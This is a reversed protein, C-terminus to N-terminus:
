EARVQSACWALSVRGGTQDNGCAAILDQAHGHVCKTCAGADGYAAACDSSMQSRCNHAPTDQVFCEAILREGFQTLKGCKTVLTSRHARVCSDCGAEDGFSASCDGHLQAKCGASLPQTSPPAPSPSPGPGPSPAPPPAVTCTRNFAFCHLLLQEASSGPTQAAVAPQQRWGRGCRERLGPM